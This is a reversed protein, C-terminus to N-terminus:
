EGKAYLTSVIIYCLLDPDLALNDKMLRDSHQQLQPGRGNFFGSPVTFQNFDLCM